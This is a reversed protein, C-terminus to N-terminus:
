GGEDNPPPLSEDIWKVVAKALGRAKDDIGMTTTSNSRGICVAEGIVVENDVLQVRAIAEEFPGFAQSTIQNDFEYHIYRGRITLTKGGAGPRPIMRDALQQRIYTPVSRVLQDPVSRGTDNTFPEVEYRDFQMLTQSSVSQIEFPIGKAGSALGMGEKIARSVCGGGSLCICAIVAALVARYPCTKM